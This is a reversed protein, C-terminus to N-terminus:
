SLTLEDIAKQIWTEEADIFVKIGAEQAAQGIRDLRQEVKKYAKKEAPTLSTTPHSVKQLLNYSAIGSMKLTIYSLATHESGKKIAKLVEEITDDSSADNSQGEVAYDLATHINYKSLNDVTTLAKELSNGGCFHHFATPKIFPALPLSLRLGIEALKISSQALWQNNLARFLWYSRSLDRDSKHSYAIRTNDFDVSTM